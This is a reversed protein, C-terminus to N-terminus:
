SVGSKKLFAYIYVKEVKREAAYIRDLGKKLSEASAGLTGPIDGLTKVMSEAEKLDAEWLEDNAYMPTLDWMYEPNMMNRAKSEM